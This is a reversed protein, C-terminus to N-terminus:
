QGWTDTISIRDQCKGELFIAYEISDSIGPAFVLGSNEGNKLNQLLDYTSKLCDLSHGTIDFIIQLHWFFISLVILPQLACIYYRLKM